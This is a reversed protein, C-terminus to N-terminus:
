WATPKIVTCYVPVWQSPRVCGDFHRIFEFWPSFHTIAICKTYPFSSIWSQKSLNGCSFILIM